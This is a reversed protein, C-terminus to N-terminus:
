IGMSDIFCLDLVVLLRVPADDWKGGFEEMKALREEVIPRILEKTRRIESPLKTVIRSVIRIIGKLLVIHSLLPHAYLKLPRPCLQVLMATKLINIASSLAVEQYERNRGIL